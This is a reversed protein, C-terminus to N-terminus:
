KVRYVGREVKKVGRLHRLAVSVSHRLTKDGTRFGADLVAQAIDMVRMPGGDARLVRRIFEKLSGPRPSGGTARRGATGAAAPSGDLAALAQDLATIRGDLEARRATLHAHATRLSSLAADLDALATSTEDGREKWRL